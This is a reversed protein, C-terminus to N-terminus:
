LSLMVTVVCLSLSLGLGYVVYKERVVFWGVGDECRVSGSKDRLSPVLEVAPHDSPKLIPSRYAYVLVFTVPSRDEGFSRRDSIM